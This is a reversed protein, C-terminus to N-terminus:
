GKNQLKDKIIKEVDYFDKVVHDALESKSDLYRGTPREIKIATIEPVAKKVLDIQDAKDEVFFIKKGRNGRFIERFNEEKSKSTVIIESFYPVTKSNEIKERQSPTTGFSLMALNDRGFEKAFDFFDDHVFVDMNAFLTDIKKRVARADFDGASVFLNFITDLDFDGVQEKTKEYNDFFDKETFGVSNFVRILEGVFAGTDLITDDFDLYIKM